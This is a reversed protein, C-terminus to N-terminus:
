NLFVPESDGENVRIVSFGSNTICLTGYLIFPLFVIYWSVNCVACVACVVFAASIACVMCVANIFPVFSKTGNSPINEM